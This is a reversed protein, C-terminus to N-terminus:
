PRSSVAAALVRHGAGVGAALSQVAPALEGIERAQARLQLTERTRAMRDGCGSNAHRVPMATRSRKRRPAPVGQRSIPKAQAIDGRM